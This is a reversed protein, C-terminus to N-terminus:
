GRQQLSSDPLGVIASEADSTYGETELGLALLYWSGELQQSLGYTFWGQWSVLEVDQFTFPSRCQFAPLCIWLGHSPLRQLSFQERIRFIINAVDEGDGSHNVPIFLDLKGVNFTDVVIEKSGSCPFQNDDTIEIWLM